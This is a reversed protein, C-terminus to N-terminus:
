AGLLDDLIYPLSLPTVTNAALLGILDLVKQRNTYIKEYRKNEASGDGMRKVIEVGYATQITGQDPDDMESELLYYELEFKNEQDHYPTENEVSICKELFRNAM